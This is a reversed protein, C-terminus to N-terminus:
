SSPWSSSIVRLDLLRADADCGVWLVFSMRVVFMSFLRTDLIGASLGINLVILEVLGKCSMLAGIAGAERNNFRAFKAAGACGIFKGLFAVVILLITYGWTKGSDLLGLNTKLGSLAFYQRPTPTLTSDVSSPLQCPLSVIPLLLITVIDEIKEVIAIAFGGEHPIALGALFGGFIPHIGSGM